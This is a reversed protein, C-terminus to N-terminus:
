PGTEPFAVFGLGRNRDNAVIVVRIVAGDQYEVWGRGIYPRESGRQLHVDFFRWGPFTARATGRWACPPSDDIGSVCLAGQADFRVHVLDEGLLTQTRAFFTRGALDALNFDGVLSPTMAASYAITGDRVEVSPNPPILATAGAGDVNFTIQFSHGHVQANNIAANNFLRTKLVATDASAASVYGDLLPVFSTTPFFRPSMVEATTAWFQGDPDIAAYLGSFPVGIGDPKQIEISVDYRGVPLANAIGFRCENNALQSLRTLSITGTGFGAGGPGDATYALSGAACSDFAFTVHGWISQVNAAPDFEGFRMGDHRYATGVITRDVITGDIYLHLPNGETDYVFWYAIARQEDLVQVSFGHGGQAPNFWSGSLGPPVAALANAALCCALAISLWRWLRTKMM